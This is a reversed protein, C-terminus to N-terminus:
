LFSFIKSVFRLLGSDRFSQYCNKKRILACVVSFWINLESIKASLKELFYVFHVELVSLLLHLPPRPMSIFSKIKILDALIYM